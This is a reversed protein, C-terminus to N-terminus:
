RYENLIIFGRTRIDNWQLKEVKESNLDKSEDYHRPLNLGIESAMRPIM